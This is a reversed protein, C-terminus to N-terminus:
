SKLYPHRPDEEDSCRRHAKWIWLPIDGKTVTVFEPTTNAIITVIRWLAAAGLLLAFVSLGLALAVRKM